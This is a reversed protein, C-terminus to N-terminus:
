FWALAALMLGIVVLMGGTAAIMRPVWESLWPGRVIRMRQPDHPDYAVDVEDGVRGATWGVSSNLAEVQDGAKTRFHVIMRSSRGTEAYGVVEGRAREGRNQLRSVLWLRRLSWWLMLAGVLIPLLPYILLM